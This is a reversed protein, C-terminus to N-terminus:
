LHYLTRYFDTPTGDPHYLSYEEWVLGPKAGKRLQLLILNVPGDTRHRLLRLKKLEFGFKSGCVCIEALREPKHVLYFDGGYKVAWGAAFFLDELSCLDERRAMPTAQSRPGASFYPPNSVCLHFAGAPLLRSIQRLDACVSQLRVGLGNRLANELATRHANEDQEIGTVQCASDKACLMIGLTGCGSGLDLARANKPLKVFHALAISDTSLPFGGPCIDLTFGNQLYEM